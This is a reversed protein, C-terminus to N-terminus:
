KISLFLGQSNALDKKISVLNIRTQKAFLLIIFSNNL